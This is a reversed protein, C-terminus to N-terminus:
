QPSRWVRKSSRGREVHLFVCAIRSPSVVLFWYAVWGPARASLRSTARPLGPNSGPRMARMASNLAMGLGNNHSCNCFRLLTSAIWFRVRSPEHRHHQSSAAARHCLALSCSCVQLYPGATAFLKCACEVEESTPDRLLDQICMHVIKETTMAVKYLHGVFQM